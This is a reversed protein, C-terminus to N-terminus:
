RLQERLPIPAMGKINPEQRDPDPVFVVYFITRVRQSRNAGGRHVIWYDALFADGLSCAAPLRELDQAMCRSRLGLGKRVTQVGSLKKIDTPVGFLDSLMLQAPLKRRLYLSLRQLVRSIIRTYSLTRWAVKLSLNNSGLWYETPGEESSLSQLPIFLSVLDRTEYRGDRHPYGFPAGPFSSVFGVGAIWAPGGFYTDLTTELWGGTGRLLDMWPGDPRVRLEWRRPGRGNPPALLDPALRARLEAVSSVNLASSLEQAARLGSEDLGGPVVVMGDRKLTAAISEPFTDRNASVEPLSM